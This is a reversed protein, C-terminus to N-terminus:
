YGRALNRLKLAGFGAMLAIITGFFINTAPGTKPLITASSTATKASSSASNAIKTGNGTYFTLSDNGSSGVNSTMNFKITNAKLEKFVYSKDKVTVVLDKTFEKNAEIQNITFDPIDLTVTSPVISTVRINTQTRNGLNNIKVQIQFKDLPAFIVSNARLDDLWITQNFGKAKIDFTLNRVEDDALVPSSLFAFVVIAFLVPLFKAM